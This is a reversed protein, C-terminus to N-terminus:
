RRVGVYRLLIGPEASLQHAVAAAARAPDRPATVLEVRDPPQQSREARGGLRRGPRGDRGASGGDIADAGPAHEGDAEWFPPRPNRAEDRM